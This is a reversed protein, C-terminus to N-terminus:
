FSAEPTVNLVQMNEPILFGSEPMPKYAPDWSEYLHKWLSKSGTISAYWLWLISSTWTDFILASPNYFISKLSYSDEITFEVLILTPLFKAPYGKPGPTEFSYLSSIICLTTSAQSDNSPSRYPM